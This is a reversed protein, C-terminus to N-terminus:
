EYDLAADLMACAKQWDIDEAGENTSTDELWAALARLYREVTPNEITQRDSEVRDALRRAFAIFDGRTRNPQQQETM